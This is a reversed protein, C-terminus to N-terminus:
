KGVPDNMDKFGAYVEAASHQLTEDSHGACHATVVAITTTRGLDSMRGFIEPGGEVSYIHDISVLVLQVYDQVAKVQALDPEGADMIARVTACTTQDDIADAVGPSPALFVVLGLLPLGGRM